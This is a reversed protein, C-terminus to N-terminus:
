SNFLFRLDDATLKAISGEQNGVTGDFVLQKKEQLQLIREEITDESIFRVGTVPRRQGIRHARQIAQMETAPNWWPDMLFVHDAAQLNLGEGGAKLSILVCTLSPDTNFAYLINSRAEMTMSGVLKACHVGGKKLRWEILELMSTFQSFVIAKSKSDKERMADVEQCLAEIKTSSRFESAKLRSMIGRTKGTAAGKGGSKGNGDREDDVEPPDKSSRSGGKRSGAASASSSSPSPASEKEKVSGRRRGLRGAAAAEAKVVEDLAAEMDGGAGGEEEGEEEEEGRLASLDVTLPSYCVPCGLDSSEPAAEVFSLLCARHFAHHCKSLCLEKKSEIDDQCIGCTESLDGVAPRSASPLQPADGRQGLNGHIILYPHDVAQRLRSLLDFIHAYNHLVTGEDVYASFATKTQMFLAEYFDREEASLADRRIRVTLPPLKVDEAREVKTRRLLIKELVDNRLYTMAVKGEGAYGYNKIPTVVKRNFYSFHSMRTHGCKLCYRNDEFRFHLSRCGCGKKNCFYFAYPHFRLFRVLSYLEGVRNQLPTGTLCWKARTSQLSYVAKATSTTRSKIRHAEDLIIRQWKVSHLLSKKLSVGGEAESHSLDADGRDFEAGEGAATAEAMAKARKEAKERGKEKEDEMGEEEEEKAGKAGKSKSVSGGSRAGGKKNTRKRDDGSDSMEGESSESSSFLSSMGSESDDNSPAYESDSEGTRGKSSRSRGSSSASKKAGKKSPKKTAGKKKASAAEKKKKPMPAAKKSKKEPAEDGEKEAAALGKGKARESRVRLVKKTRSTSEEEEDDSSDSSASDDESNEFLDKSFSVRSSGSAALRGSRRSSERQSSDDEKEEEDGEDMDVDEDEEKGGKKPNKASKKTGAKKTRKSPREIEEEEEDDNQNGDEEDPELFAVKKKKKQSETQKKKKIMPVKKTGGKKKGGDKEEEEEGEADVDIAEDSPFARRLRRSARSSTSGDGGEGGEAAAAAPAAAPAQSPPQKRRKQHKKEDEEEPEEPPFLFASLRDVLANKTGETELGARKAMERLKEVKEKMLGTKSVGFERLLVARFAADASSSDDHDAGTGTGPPTPSEPPSRESVSGEDSVDAKVKGGKGKGRSKDRQARSPGASAAAAAAAAAGGASASSSSLSIVSNVSSAAAGKRAQGKKPAGKAGKQSAAARWELLLSAAADADGRTAEAEEAEIEMEIEEEDDGDAGNGKRKKKKNKGVPKGKAKAKPKAKESVGKGQKGKKMEDVAEEEKDKGEADGSASSSSSVEAAGSAASRGQARLARDSVSSSPAATPADSPAVSRRSSSAKGKPKGGGAKNGKGGEAKKANEGSVEVEKEEEEGGMVVDSSSAAAAASSSSSSSSSLAGEKKGKKEQKATETEKESEEETEKKQQQQEQRSKRSQYWPVAGNPLENERNAKRMIERYVNTITPVFSREREPVSAAAAAASSRKRKRGSSGEAQEEAGPGTADAHTVINLTKMAKKAAEQNKKQTKKQKETREANPGCFYRLHVKLKDPLFLRQCYKCQKKQKNVERRFDQEVTQYTTIVVDAKELEGSLLGRYQGHYILVSLAGPKTFKEIEMKWQLVTALPSVVLTKARRMGSEGEEEDDEDSEEAAAAAAAAGRGGRRQLASSSSSSFSSSAAAATNNNREEEEQKKALLLSVAQITKGMGMEDALIGGRVVGEEQRCMWALGEEQFPLLPVLLSDPAKRREMPEKRKVLSQLPEGGEGEEGEGGEPEDEKRLVELVSERQEEELDKWGFCTKGITNVGVGLTLLAARCCQPHYWCIIAGFCGRPDKLPFGLRLKKKECASGCGRCKSMNTTAINAVVRVDELRKKKKPELRKVKDEPIWERDEPDYLADQLMGPPLKPGKSLFGAIEDPIDTM